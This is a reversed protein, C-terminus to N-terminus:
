KSHQGHVVFSTKHSLLIHKEDHLEPLRDSTIFEIKGREKKKGEDKNNCQPRHQLTFKWRLLFCSSASQVLRSSGVPGRPEAQKYKRVKDEAQDELPVPPRRRKPQSSTEGFIDWSACVGASDMIRRKYRLSESPCNDDKYRRPFGDKFLRVWM